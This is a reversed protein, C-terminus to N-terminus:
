KGRQLSNYSTYARAGGGLLESGAKLYGSTQANKGATTDLASSNNFGRARQEGQYIVNQKELEGQMANDALVDLVSGQDAAGGSRGQAARSAGFRMYNERDVQQAAAAADARAIQANQMEVNANFESAARAAKGQQIASVAGVVASAAMIYPIAAAMVAM